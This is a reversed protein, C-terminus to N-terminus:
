PLEFRGMFLVAGTRHDQIIFLFPHDARFTIPKQPEPPGGAPSAPVMIVATAATAETGKEDVTVTAQHIVDSVMLGESSTIRSFDAGGSFALNMGLSKLISSLQFRSQMKFPPLSADVLRSQRLKQSWARYQEASLKKEVEALGEKSKPLIIIMSLERGRYPLSLIQVDEDDAYKFEATQRMLPVNRTDQSSLYFTAPATQSKAFVSAWGGEFCIANTLLLRTSGDISGSSLFDSIRGRTQTDMWRNITQLAEEPKRFDMAVPEARYNQRTTQLFSDSMRFQDAVWLRNAAQLTYGQAEGTSNLLALLTFYGQHVSQGQQIHLVHAMEKETDGSAGAYAMALASSVSAPSFFLNGKQQRLRQYLDFALQNNSESATQADQTIPISSSLQSFSKSNAMGFLGDKTTLNLVDHNILQASVLTGKKISGVRNGNPSSLSVAETAMYNPKFKDQPPEALLSQFPTCALLLCLYSAHSHFM